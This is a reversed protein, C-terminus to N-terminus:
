QNSRRPIIFWNEGDGFSDVFGDECLIKMIDWFDSDLGGRRM